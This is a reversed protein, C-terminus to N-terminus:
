ESCAVETHQLQVVKSTPSPSPNSVVLRYEGEGEIRVDFPIATRRASEYYTRAPRDIMWDQYAAETMILVVVQKDGGSLGVVQGSVLCRTRPSRAVFQWSRSKAPRIKVPDTTGIKTIQQDVVRVGVPPPSGRPTAFVASDVPLPPNCVVPSPLQYTCRTPTLAHTATAKWQRGSDIAAVTLTVNTSPSFGFLPNSANVIGAFYGNHDMFYAEEATALMRLDGKMASIYGREVGYARYHEAASTPTAQGNLPSTIGVVTMFAILIAFFRKVTIGQAPRVSLFGANTIARALRAVNPHYEENV